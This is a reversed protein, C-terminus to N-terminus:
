LLDGEFTTKLVFMAKGAKIRWKRLAEAGDKKGSSDGSEKPPPM